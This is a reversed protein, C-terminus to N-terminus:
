DKKKKRIKGGTGAVIFSILTILISLKGAWDGFQTFFTFNQRLPLISYGIKVEGSKSPASERGWPDIFVSIGTNASRVIPIRNEVARLIAYQSHQYPGSSGEFWGDNTIIALFEAGNRVFERVHGPFVAEFCILPSFPADIVQQNSSQKLQWHSHNLTIEEPQYRMNFITKIDGKEYFQTQGTFYKLFGFYKKYPITETIPVLHIKNYIQPSQDMSQDFYFASNYLRRTGNQESAHMAGILLKVDLGSALEELEILLKPYDDLYVPVATEPWVILDPKSLAAERTLDFLIKVNEDLFEPKWKTKSDINPQIYAIRVGKYDRVESLRHYGYGLSGAIILIFASVPLILKKRRNSSFIVSYGIQNLILVILTLGSYGTWEIFQIFPLLYTQTHAINLWNYGLDTFERSFDIATWIFPNLYPFFKGLRKKLIVYLYGYLGFQLPNLILITLFGSVSYLSIWYLTGANVLIGILYGTRLGEKPSLDDLVWFFPIFAFWALFGTPFPPYAAILLLGSLLIKLNFSSAFLSIWALRRAQKPLNM